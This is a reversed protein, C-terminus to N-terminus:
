IKTNAIALLVERALLADDIARHSNQLGIQLQRGADGLKFYRYSQRVPNWEGYFQAYCKMIDFTKLRENWKLGYRRHSQEMMRIDFDDNYIAVRKNLLVPKLSQWVIPWPLASKVMENTIGNIATSSFPISQTPRVFQDFLKNGMSDIVAVEIIEDNVTLGTTETDLYLLDEQLINRAQEISALRTSSINM